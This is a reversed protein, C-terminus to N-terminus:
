SPLVVIVPNIVTPLLVTLLAILEEDTDAVEKNTPELTTTLVDAKKTPLEDTLATRVAVVNSTSPVTVAVFPENTSKDTEPLKVTVPVNVVSSVTLKTTLSGRILNAFLLLM